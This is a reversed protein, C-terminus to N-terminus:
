VSRRGESPSTPVLRIEVECGVAKAYRDLTAVSPSHKGGELRSVASKTTGMHAAVEEQTLSAGSVRPWSNALWDTGSLAPLGWRLGEAASGANSSRRTTMACRAM